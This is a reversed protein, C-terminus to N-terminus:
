LRPIKEEYADVEKSHMYRGSIPRLLKGEDSIRWTFVVFLARGSATWGAARYRTETTNPDLNIRPEGLFLSEIEAISVGHKQCKRENGEDWDFGDFKM